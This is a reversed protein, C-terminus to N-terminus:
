MMLNLGNHNIVLNSFPTVTIVPGSSSTRKSNCISTEQVTDMIGATNKADARRYIVIISAKNCMHDDDKIYGQEILEGVTVTKFCTQNGVKIYNNLFAKEEDRTNAYNSYIKMNQYLLDENNSAIGESARLAKNMANVKKETITVFSGDSNVCPKLYNNIKNSAYSKAAEAINEEAQYALKQKQKNISSTIGLGAATALVALIAVAALIEVLTFGNKNNM